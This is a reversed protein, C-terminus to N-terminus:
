SSGPGLIKKIELLYQNQPNMGDPMNKKMRLGLSIMKDPEEESSSLESVISLLDKAYQSYKAQKSFMGEGASDVCIQLVQKASKKVQQADGKEASVLIRAALSLGAAINGSQIQSKALYLAALLYGSKALDALASEHTLMIEDNEFKVASEIWKNIAENIIALAKKNEKENEALSLLVAIHHKASRGEKPEVQRYIQRFYDAEEEERRIREREHPLIKEEIENIKALIEPDNKTLLTFSKLEDIAKITKFQDSFSNVLGSLIAKASESIIERRKDREILEDSMRQLDQLASYLVQKDKQIEPEKSIDNYHNVAEDYMGLETEIKAMKILIKFSKSADYAEQYDKLADDYKGLKQNSEARLILSDLYKKQYVESSEKDTKESLKKYSDVANNLKDPAFDKEDLNSQSCEAYAKEVILLQDPNGEFKEKLTTLFDAISARFQKDRNNQYNIILIKTLNELFSALHEYNEILKNAFIKMNETIALKAEREYCKILTDIYSNFVEGEVITNTQVILKIIEKHYISTTKSICEHAKDLASCAEMTYAEAEKEQQLYAFIMLIYCFYATEPESQKIAEALKKLAGAARLTNKPQGNWGYLSSLAQIYPQNAEKRLPEQHSSDIFKADKGIQCAILQLIRSRTSLVIGLFIARAEEIGPEIFYMFRSTLDLYEILSLDKTTAGNWIACANFFMEYPQNSMGTEDYIEKAQSFYKFANDLKGQNASILGLLTAVSFLPERNSYPTEIINKLQNIIMEKQSTDQVASYSQKYLAIIKGLDGNNKQYLGALQLMAQPSGSAAAQEFWKTAETLDNLENLYCNGIEGAYQAKREKDQITLASTKQLKAYNLFPQLWELHSAPIEDTLGVTVDAGNKILYLATRVDGTKLAAGIASEKKKNLMNIINNKDTASKTNTLIYEIIPFHKYRAALILPTDYSLSERCNTGDRKLMTALQELPAGDILAKQLPETM